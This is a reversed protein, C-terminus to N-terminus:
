IYIERETKRNTGMNVEGKEERMKKRARRKERKDKKNRVFINPTGKPKGIVFSSRLWFVKWTSGGGGRFLSLIFPSINCRQPLSFDVWGLLSHCGCDMTLDHIAAAGICSGCDVLYFTFNAAAIWSGCDVLHIMVDCPNRSTLQPPAATLM